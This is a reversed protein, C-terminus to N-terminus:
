GKRGFFRKIRQRFTPKDVYGPLGNFSKQEVPRPAPTDMNFQLSFGGAPILDVETKTGDELTIEIRETTDRVGLADLDARIQVRLADQRVLLERAAKISPAKTEIGDITVWHEGYEDIANQTHM